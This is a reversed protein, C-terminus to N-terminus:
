EGLIRVLAEVTERMIGTEQDTWVVKSQDLASLDADDDVVAYRDVLSEYSHLWRKIESARSGAPVHPTVDFFTYHNDPTRERVGARILCAYLGGRTEFVARNLRWTSSIVVRANTRTLVENLLVVADPDIKHVADHRDLLFRDQDRM